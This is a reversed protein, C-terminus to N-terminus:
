HPRVGESLGFSVVPGTETDGGMIHCEQIGYLLLFRNDMRCLLVAGEDTLGIESLVPPM